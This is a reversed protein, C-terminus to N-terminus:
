PGDRWALYRRLAIEESDLAVLARVANGEAYFKYAQARYSIADMLAERGAKVCEGLPAEYLRLVLDGLLVAAADVAM